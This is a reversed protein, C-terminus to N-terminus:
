EASAPPIHNHHTASQTLELVNAYGGSGSKMWESIRAVTRSSLRTKSVVETYTAGSNLLRAAELRSSIELIEKETLVDRLFNQMATNSDLLVLVNAFQQAIPDSWINEDTQTMNFVKGLYLLFTLV